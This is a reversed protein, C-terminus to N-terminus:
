FLFQFTTFGAYILLLLIGQWRRLRGRSVSPLCMIAMVLFMVPLDVVLSANMGAITKEAPLLFPNLTIAAGSVLVINFINAGIINGVSLASHGKILATVATVLEPLSTGLAIMTLGIVSDPVGMATAIKTGNNM